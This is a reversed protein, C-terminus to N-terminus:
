GLLRVKLREFEDRTLLGSELMSALKTLEEVPSGQAPVAPATAVPRASRILGLPRSLAMRVQQPTLRNHMLFLECSAAQIRVVTTISTKTTLANLVAAVAMGELAGVAGFGGGYFRGGTRVLGPGGIEVDEVEGYPVQLLVEARGCWCAVLGNDLFRVDYRQGVTLAGPPGYGGLLAVEGLIGLSSANLERFAAAEAPSGAPRSQEALRARAAREAMVSALEQAAGPDASSLAAWARQWGDETLPWRELIKYGGLASRGIMVFGPGGKQGPQWQWGLTRRLGDVLPRPVESEDLEGIAPMAPILASHRGGSRAQALEGSAM